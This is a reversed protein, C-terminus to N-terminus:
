KGGIDTPAISERDLVGDFRAILQRLQPDSEIESVAERQREAALRQQRMAPTEGQPSGTELSVVVPEGIYNELALRIKERHADNYHSANAADPVFALAKGNRRRM